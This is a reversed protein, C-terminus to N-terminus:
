VNERSTNIPLCDPYWYELAPSKNQKAAQQFAQWVRDPAQLYKIARECAAVTTSYGHEIVFGSPTTLPAELDWAGDQWLLYIVGDLVDLGGSPITGRSVTVRLDKKTAYFGRAVLIQIAEAHPNIPTKSKM